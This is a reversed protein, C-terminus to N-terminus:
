SLKMTLLIFFKCETNSCNLFFNKKTIFGLARFKFDFFYRDPLVEWYTTFVHMCKKLIPTRDKEFLFNCYLLAPWCNKKHVEYCPSMKKASFFEGNSNKDSIQQFFTTSSINKKMNRKSAQDPIRVRAKSRILGCM